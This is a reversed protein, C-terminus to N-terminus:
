VSSPPSRVPTDIVNRTAPSTLPREKEVSLPTEYLTLRRPTEELREHLHMDRVDDAVGSINFPTDERPVEHEELVNGDSGDMATANMITYEDKVLVSEVTLDIGNAYDQYGSVRLKKPRRGDYEAFQFDNGELSHHFRKRNLQFNGAIKAHTSLGAMRPLKELKEMAKNLSRLLLSLGYGVDEDTNYQCRAIVQNSASRIEFGPDIDGYYFKFRYIEYVDSQPNSPDSVVGFDVGTLKKAEIPKTLDHLVKIIKINAPHNKKLMKVAITKTNPSSPKVSKKLPVDEFMDEFFIGRNYLISSVATKLANALWQTERNLTEERKFLDEAVDLCILQKAPSINAYSESTEPEFGTEVSSAQSPQQIQEVPVASQKKTNRRPRGRGAM